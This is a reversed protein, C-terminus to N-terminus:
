VIQAKQKWLNGMYQYANYLKFSESLTGVFTEAIPRPMYFGPSSRYHLGLQGAICLYNENFDFINWNIKSKWDPIEKDLFEITQDIASEMLQHQEPTIENM